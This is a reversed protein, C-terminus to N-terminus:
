IYFLYSIIVQQAACPVRSLASHHGLHSPFGFPLPYIYIYPQNMESHLLLYCLMM